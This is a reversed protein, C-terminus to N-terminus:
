ADTKEATWQHGQECELFSRCTAEDFVTQQGDWFLKTEGDWDVGVGEPGDDDLGDAYAFLAVGPITEVTGIARAGCEPCCLPTFMM